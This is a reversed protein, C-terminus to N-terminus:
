SGTTWAPPDSAPFSEESAVDVVDKKRSDIRAGGFFQCRGTVGYQLLQTAAAAGLWSSRRGRRFARAALWAGAVISAARAAFNLRRSNM